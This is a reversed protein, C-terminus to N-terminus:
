EHLVKNIEKIIMSEAQDAWSKFIKSDAPNGNLYTMLKDINFKSDYVGAGASYADRSNVFQEYHGEVPVMLAPKGLYMAECISEFGATSVLAMSQSMLELFKEGDLQHFSLTDDIKKEGKIRPDDMFCHIPVDPHKEHWKKISGQYGSNLLYILLFGENRIEKERVSQRLLPPVVAINRKFYPTMEYFSLGLLLDSKRATLNTFFQLSRKEAFFGDPMKFDPHISLYQHAVCIFKYNGKKRLVHKLGMLPEYFSVILDPRTNSIISDVKDLNKLFKPLIALNKFISGSIDIGKNKKDTIFNPSQVEYIDVNLEKKVFEPIKRQTSTGIIAGVLEYGNRDLINKLAISQTMHGRGEGQIAFLVRKKM